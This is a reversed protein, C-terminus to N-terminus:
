PCYEIMLWTTNVITGWIKFYLNGSLSLWQYFKRTSNPPFKCEHFYHACKFNLYYYILIFLLRMFMPLLVFLSMIYSFQRRCQCSSKTNLIGTLELVFWKEPDLFYTICYSFTNVEFAYNNPWFSLWCSLCSLLYTALNKDISQM